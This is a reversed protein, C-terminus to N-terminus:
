NAGERKKSSGPGNNARGVKAGSYVARRHVGAVSNDLCAPAETSTTVDTHCLNTLLWLKLTSLLSDM